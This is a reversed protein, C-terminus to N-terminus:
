VLQGPKIWFLVFCVHKGEPEPLTITIKSHADHCIVEIAKRFAWTSHFCRRQLDRYVHTKRPHITPAIGISVERLPVVIVGDFLLNLQARFGDWAM